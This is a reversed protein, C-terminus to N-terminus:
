NDVSCQWFSADINRINGVIWEKLELIDAYKNKLFSVKFSLFVWILILFLIVGLLSYFIFGMWKVGEVFYIGSAPISLFLSLGGFGIIGNIVDNLNTKAIDLVSEITRTRM